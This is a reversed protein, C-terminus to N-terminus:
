RECVTEWVSESEGVCERVWVREGVSKGVCVRERGCVRGGWKGELGHRGGLKCM